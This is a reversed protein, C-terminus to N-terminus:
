KNNKEDYFKNWIYNIDSENNPYLLTDNEDIRSKVYDDFKGIEKAPNGGVITNDDVDKNVVSGAAIIVNNGIKVNPLIIVNCGIFVNNGIEIPACKYNYTITNDINNLVKDVVDHTVFTVDSAVSVNNGFSILKPEDPLKRPQFFFNQGVSKFFHKKIILKTRKDANSILYLRLKTFYKM